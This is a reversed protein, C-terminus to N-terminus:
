EIVHIRPLMHQHLVRAIFIGDSKRRYLTVHRGHEMCRYGTKIRNCPRGMSPSEAIKLVCEQIEDLYRM